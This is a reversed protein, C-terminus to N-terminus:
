VGLQAQKTVWMTAAVASGNGNNGTLRFRIYKSVVPAITIKHINNDSVNTFIPSGGEQICWDQGVSDALNELAAPATDSVQMEVKVSPNSGVLFMALSLASLDGIKISSTYVVSQNDVTVINPTIGDTLFDRNTHFM